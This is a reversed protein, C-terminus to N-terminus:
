TVYSCPSALDSWEANHAEIENSACVANFESTTNLGSVQRDLELHM